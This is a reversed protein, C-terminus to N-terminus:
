FPPDQPRMGTSSRVETEIQVSPDPGPIVAVRAIGAQAGDRHDCPEFFARRYTWGDFNAPRHLRLRVGQANPELRALTDLVRRLGAESRQGFDDIVFCIKRPRPTNPVTEVANTPQQRSVPLDTENRTASEQPSNNLPQSPGCSSLAIMAAFAMYKM